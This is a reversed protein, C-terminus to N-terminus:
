TCFYVLLCFHELVGSYLLMGPPLFKKIDGHQMSSLFKTIFKLIDPNTPNTPHFQLKSKMLTVSVYTPFIVLKLNKM